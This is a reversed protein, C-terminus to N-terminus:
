ASGAEYEVEGEDELELDENPNEDENEELDVEDQGGDDEDREDEEQFDEERQGDETDQNRPAYHHEELEQLDKGAEREEEREAQVSQFVLKEDDDATDEDEETDSVEAAMSTSEDVQLLEEEADAGDETGDEEYEEEEYQDADEEDEDDDQDQYQGGESTVADTVAGAHTSAPERAWSAADVQVLEEEADAGDERPAHLTTEVPMAAKHIFPENVDAWVDAGSHRTGSSTSVFLGSSWDKTNEDHEHADSTSGAALCLVLLLLPRRM